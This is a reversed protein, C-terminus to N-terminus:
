AQRAGRPIQKVTVEDELVHGSGLSLYRHLGPQTIAGEAWYLQETGTEACMRRRLHPELPVVIGEAFRTVYVFPGMRLDKILTVSRPTGGLYTGTYDIYHVTECDGFVDRDVRDVSVLTWGRLPRLALMLERAAAELKPLGRQLSSATSSTTASLQSRLSDAQDLAHALARHPVGGKCLSDILEGVRGPTGTLAEAASCALRRWPAPWADGTGNSSFAEPPLTKRTALAMSGLMIGLLRWSAEVLAVLSHAREIPSNASLAARARAAVPLPMGEVGGGLGAGAALDQAHRAIQGLASADIFDIAVSREVELVEGRVPGRAHWESAIQRAIPEAADPGAFAITGPAPRAFVAGAGAANGAVQLLELELAGFVSDGLQKLQESEEFALLGVEGGLEMLKASERAFDDREYVRLQHESLDVVGGPAGSAAIRALAGRAEDIRAAAEDSSSGIPMRGVAIPVGAAGSAIAHIEAFYPDPDRTGDVLAAFHGDFRAVPLVLDKRHLALAARCAAASDGSAEGTAAGIVLIRDDALRAALAVEWALGERGLLGTQEDVAMAPVQSPVYRGDHFVGAVVGIAVAQGHHLPREEGRELISLGVRVPVSCKPERRVYCRGDRRVVRVANRSVQRHPLVLANTIDGIREVSGIGFEDTEPTLTLTRIRTDGGFFGGEPAAFRIEDNKGARGRWLPTAVMGTAYMTELAHTGVIAAAPTAAEAKTEQKISGALQNYFETVTSPRADPTKALARRIVDDVEKPVAPDMESLLRPMVPSNIQEVLEFITGGLYVPRGSIAEYLVAALGYIDSRSDIRDQQGRVQEPSMYLPTGIFQGAVTSGAQNLVKSIGFDIIKVVEGEDETKCLFVNQPKLDRHVIDHRHAVSLAMAAQRCIALVDTLPLKTRAKLRAGLDEGDLLDMVLYPMGSPLQNFDHTHAIFRSGLNSTITAEQQFRAFAEKDHSRLVKVAVGKNLRLHTAAFVTGYTGEGVVRDIRYTDSVVTGILEEPSGYM